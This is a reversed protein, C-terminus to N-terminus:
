QFRSAKRKGSEPYSDRIERVLEAMTKGRCNVTVDAYKAYLPRREEYIQKLSKDKLGVIGKSAADNIRKEITEIADDLYVLTANEKLYEMLDPHYIISGGPAIVKGDLDIKTMEEKEIQLLVDEGKTDIIQQITQGQGDEIYDDLDLFGIGLAPALAAGLTSKGVGAMGILILSDGKM